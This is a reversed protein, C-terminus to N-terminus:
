HSSTARKKASSVGFRMRKLTLLRIRRQMEDAEAILARGADTVVVARVPPYSYWRMLGKSVLKACTKPSQAYVNVPLADRLVQWERKSLTM